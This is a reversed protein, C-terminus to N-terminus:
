WLFPNWTRCWLPSRAAWKIMFWGLSIPWDLPELQILAEGLSELRGLPAEWTGQSVLYLKILKKNYFVRHKAIFPVRHRGKYCLQNQNIFLRWLKRKRQWQVDVETLSHAHPREKAGLADRRRSPSCSDKKEKRRGIKELDAVLVEEAIEHFGVLSCAM